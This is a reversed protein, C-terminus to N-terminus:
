EETYEDGGGNGWFLALRVNMEDPM